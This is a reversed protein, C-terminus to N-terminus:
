RITASVEFTTVVSPDAKASVRVPERLTGARAKAGDITVTITEKAKPPIVPAYEYYLCRCTSRAVTISMPEESNNTLEFQRTARTGKAITGYDTAAPAVSLLSRVTAATDPPPPATEDASTDTATATDEVIPREPVRDKSAWWIVLGILGLAIIGAVLMLALRSRSEREADDVLDDHPMPTLPQLGPRTSRPVETGRYSPVEPPPPPPVASTGLNRPESTGGAGLADLQALAADTEQTLKALTERHRRFLQRLDELERTRRANVTSLDDSM